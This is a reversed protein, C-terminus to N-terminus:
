SVLRKTFTNIWDYSTEDIFVIDYSQKFKDIYDVDGNLFGIKLCHQHSFHNSMNADTLSDGLLLINTQKIKLQPLQLLSSDHKNLSHIILSRYGIVKKEQYAFENAFITMNDFLINKHKLFHYIVDKIGASFIIVPINHKHLLELFEKVGDRLVLQGDTAAQKVIDQTLGYQVFLTLHKKWWENMLENRKDLPGDHDYEFPGFHQKLAFAKQVYEPNIYDGHRFVGIANVTPRNNSVAKTLTKDFDAVVFFNGRLQQQKKELVSSDFLPEM